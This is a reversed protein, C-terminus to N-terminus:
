PFMFFSIEGCRSRSVGPWASCGRHRLRQFRRCFTRPRGPASPPFGLRSAFGLLFVLTPLEERSLHSEAEAPATTPERLATDERSRKRSTFGCATTWSIRHVSFLLINHLSCLHCTPLIVCPSASTTWKEMILTERRGLCSFISVPTHDSM